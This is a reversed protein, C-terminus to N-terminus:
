VPLFTLGLQQQGTHVLPGFEAQFTYTKPTGNNLHTEGYFGLLIKVHLLEYKDIVNNACHAVTVSSNVALIEQM